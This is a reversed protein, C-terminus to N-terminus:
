PRVEEDFRRRCHKVAVHLVWRAVATATPFRELLRCAGPSLQYYAKVMCRGLRRRSLVADRYARLVRTEPADAGFVCTAVFCRRDAVSAVGEDFYQLHAADGRARAERQAPTQQNGQLHALLVRKECFGMEALESASVTGQRSKRRSSM